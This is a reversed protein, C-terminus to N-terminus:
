SSTVGVAKCIERVTPPYGNERITKQILQLTKQHNPDLVDKKSM